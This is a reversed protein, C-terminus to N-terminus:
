KITQVTVACGEYSLSDDSGPKYGPMSVGLVLKSSCKMRIFGDETVKWRQALIPL